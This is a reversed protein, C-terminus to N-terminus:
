RPNMAPNGPQIVQAKNPPSDLVYEIIWEARNIPLSDWFAVQRTAFQRKTPTAKAGGLTLLEPPEIAYLARVAHGILKVRYTPTSRQSVHDIEAATEGIVRGVLSAASVIVEEASSSSSATTGPSRSSLTVSTPPISKLLVTGPTSEVVLDCHYTLWSTDPDLRRFAQGIPRPALLQGPPQSSAGIPTATVGGCLDIIADDTPRIRLGAVGRPGLAKQIGPSSAWQQWNTLPIERWMNGDKLCEKLNSVYTWAASFSIKGSNQYLGEEGSFSVFILTKKIEPAVDQRSNLLAFFADMAAQRPRGPAVHYSANLQVLYRAHNNTESAIRYSGEASTCDPPLGGHQQVDVISFDVRRKDASVTRERQQRTFGPIAAPVVQEWYNDASDTVVKGGALRTMPIEYHGTITRTTYGDGDISISASYNFAMIKKAYVAQGCLPICTTIEWELQCGISGLPSLNLLKPIPGWRVDKVVSTNIQLEGVGHGTYILGQGQTTLRREIEQMTSEQSSGTQNMVFCKANITISNYLVTRGADDVVPTIRVKTSTGGPFTFGNYALVSSDGLISM